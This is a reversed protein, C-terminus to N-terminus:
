HADPGRGPLDTNPQHLATLRQHDTKGNPLVPWEAAVTIEAPVMHGPLRERLWAVLRRPEPAATGPASQIACVLGRETAAVVAARQVGPHVLLHQEVSEAVVRMGRVKLLRDSRGLWVLGAATMKARDGTALSRVACGPGVPLGDGLAGLAVASGTVVIQGGAQPDPGDGPEVTVTVHDLATGVPVPADAPEAGTFEYATVIGTTETCGYLNWIRTHPALGRTRHALPADLTESAFLVRRVGALMTRAEDEPLADLLARWYSPTVDLHSVRQERVLDAFEWPTHVQEDTPVVVTAGAALPLLLQRISSSFGLPAVGLCRDGARLGVRDPLARAYQALGAHGLLMGKPADTSGSTFMAFAGGCVDVAPLDMGRVPSLLAAAEVAHADVAPQRGGAARDVIVTRVGAAKVMSTLLADPYLPDLPLYVAGSRMVGLILVPALHSRGSAVAVLDGAATGVARLHGAVADAMQTAEGYTVRASGNVAPEGLRASAARQV